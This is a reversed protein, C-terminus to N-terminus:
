KIAYKVGGNDRLHKPLMIEGGNQAMRGETINISALDSYNEKIGGIFLYPKYENHSGIEAYGQNQLVVSDKVESDGVIKDREEASDVITWAYYSGETAKAADIIYGQVSTVSTMVAMFMAASLMIGVITVATRVKNKTLTKRTVKNLVNM